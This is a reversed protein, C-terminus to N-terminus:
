SRSRQATTCSRNAEWLGLVAASGAESARAPAAETCARTSRRATPNCGSTSSAAPAAWSSACRSTPSWRHLKDVTMAPDSGMFGGMALVPQRHRPRDLLGAALQPGRGPLLLRRQNAELYSVLSNNATGDPQTWSSSTDPLASPGAVPLSANSPAALVAHGGLGAPALLLALLGVSVLGPAWRRWGSKSELLRVALWPCRRSCPAGGFTLPILWLEM